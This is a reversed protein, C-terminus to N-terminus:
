CIRSMPSGFPERVVRRGGIFTEMVVRGSGEVVEGIIATDRGYRNGKVTELVKEAKDPDVGMVAIGENALELPDLGLMDTASRVVGKIPINEEQLIIDVGSKKAMDNIAGSLGGRTPDKMATVGGTELAQSVMSWLPAVDSEIPSDFRLGERQSLLSLQHNGITGTVMIRDGITLGSDPIV